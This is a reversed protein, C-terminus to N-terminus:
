RKMIRLVADSKTIDSIAWPGNRGSDDNLHWLILVQEYAQGGKGEYIRDALLMLASREPEERLTVELVLSAGATDEAVFMACPLDKASGFPPLSGQSFPLSGSDKNAAPADTLFFFLGALCLLVLPLFIKIYSYKYFRPM